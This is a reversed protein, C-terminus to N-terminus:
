RSRGDVDREWTKFSALMESVVGANQASVDTTEGIDTDLNFLQCNEEDGVLKWPGERVAWDKEKRWFVTRKPLPKGNFLLPTLTTGDVGKPAAAGALEAYTPLLDMTMATEHTVTGPAIRTPWWAIAPERHGGEWVEGKEGRCPGNSSVEGRFKGQYARYGGNDSTFFVFTNGDLGLTKIAAMIEGVSRDVAEVMKQVVPAVQGEPHPGLKELGWYDKGKERHANEGPAQWPFHIVLHAVYLFFPRDKNKRMFDISHKTILDSSYGAEMEIRENHYWDEDGSRSIHSIHDGDGTLLGRFDDFGFYTPMHPPHYGLHWKGYMGTAYGAKKLTQPITAADVPLGIDPSKASLASEFPTGFRQPYQGTLIAARTPSCMPGNAHFDTFKLGEKALMDLHPTRNRPHGYCALDGYGLDDAVILIINPRSRAGESNEQAISAFPHALLRGALAATACKLFERREM